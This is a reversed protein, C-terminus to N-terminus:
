GGRTLICSSVNLLNHCLSFINTCVLEWKMQVAKDKLNMGYMVHPQRPLWLLFLSYVSLKRMYYTQSTKDFPMPLVAEFTAAYMRGDSGQATTKDTAKETHAKIKKEIKITDFVM